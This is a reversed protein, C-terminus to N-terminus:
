NFSVNKSKYINKFIKLRVYDSLKMIEEINKPTKRKLKIFDDTKIIKLLNKSIENFKIKKNLFLEM